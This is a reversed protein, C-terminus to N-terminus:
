LIEESRTFLYDGDGAFMDHTALLPSAPDGEIRAACYGLAQLSSFLARPEDGARTLHNAVLELLLAPRFRALTERAGRLVAGEWGEVDVKVFDLQEIKERVAFFDLTTLKVTERHQARADIGEGLHAVGFGLSGSAKIPTSLVAESECDSLGLPVLAVNGLAKARLMPALISRAYASPEFAYVRGQPALAAFLKTFQGAHAGVDIVVGDRPILPKLIPVLETHHQRTIAKWRHATQTLKQRFSLSLASM